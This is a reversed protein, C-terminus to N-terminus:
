FCYSCSSSNNRDVIRLFNDASVDLDTSSPMMVKNFIRLPARVFDDHIPLAFHVDKELGVVRCVTGEPIMFVESFIKVKLGLAREISILEEATGGGDPRRVGYVHIGRPTPVPRGSDPNIFAFHYQRMDALDGRWIGIKVKDNIDVVYMVENPTPYRGIQKETGSVSARFAELRLRAAEVSGYQSVYFDLIEQHTRGPYTRYVWDVWDESKSDATTSSSTTPKMAMTGTTTRFSRQVQKHM